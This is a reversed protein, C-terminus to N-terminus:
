HIGRMLYVCGAWLVSLVVTSIAAAALLLGLSRFVIQKAGLHRWRKGLLVVMMLLWFFFMGLFRLRLMGSAIFTALLAVLSAIM